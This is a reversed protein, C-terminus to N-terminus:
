HEIELLSIKELTQINWTFKGDSVISNYVDLAMEELILAKVRNASALMLNGSPLLKKMTKISQKVHERYYMILICVSSTRLQVVYRICFLAISSIPLYKLFVYIIQTCNKWIEISLKLPTFNIFTSGHQLEDAM